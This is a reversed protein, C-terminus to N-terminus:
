VLDQLLEKVRLYRKIARRIDTQTEIELKTLINIKMNRLSIPGKIANLFTKGEAQFDKGNQFGMKLWNLEGIHAVAINNRNSVRNEKTDDPLLDLIQRSSIDKYKLYLYFISIGDDFNNILPNEQILNAPSNSKNTKVDILTTFIKDKYKYRYGVDELGTGGAKYVGFYDDPVKTKKPIIRFEVEKNFTEKIFQKLYKAMVVESNVQNKWIPKKSIIFDIFTDRSEVLYRESFDELTQNSLNKKIMKESLLLKTRQNGKLKPALITDIDDDLTPITNKIVNKMITELLVKNKVIVKAGKRDAISNDKIMKDLEVQYVKKNAVFYAIRKKNSVIKSRGKIKLRRLLNGLQIGVGTIKKLQEENIM